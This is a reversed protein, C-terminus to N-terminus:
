VSEISNKARPPVETVPLPVLSSTLAVREPETRQGLARSLLLDVARRGMHEADGRLSCAPVQEGAYTKCLLLMQQQDALGSSAMTAKLHVLTDSSFVLGASPRPNLAMISRAAAAVDARAQKCFFIREPHLAAGGLQLRRAFGTLLLEADLERERQQLNGLFFVCRHGRDLFYEAARQGESLCDIAVVDVHPNQSWYDVVVVPYGARVHMEIFREDQVDMVIVGLTENPSSLPRDVCGDGGAQNWERISITYGAAEARTFIGQLVRGYFRDPVDPAAGRTTLVIIHRAHRRQRWAAIGDPLTLTGRRPARQILGEAELVSLARRITDRSVSHIRCLQHETALHVPRDYKLGVIRARLVNAIQEYVPVPSGASHGM